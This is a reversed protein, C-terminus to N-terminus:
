GAALIHIRGGLARLAIRAGGGELAGMLHTAASIQMTSLPLDCIVGGSSQADVSGRVTQPLLLTIDGGQSGFTIGNNATLRASIDGGSTFARVKGNDNGLHVDGGATHLDLTGTSDGVRINGGSSSLNEPGELQRADVDGGATDATVAGSIGSLFAHGGSTHVDVPGGINEIRANGSSSTAHVSADIIGYPSMVAPLVCFFPIIARCKSPLGRGPVPWVLGTFCGSTGATTPRVRRFSYM